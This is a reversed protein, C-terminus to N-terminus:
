SSSERLRTYSAASCTLLRKEEELIAIVSNTDAHRRSVNLSMPFEGVLYLIQIICEHGSRRLPIDTRNHLQTTPSVVTSDMLIMYGNMIDLLSCTLLWCCTGLKIVQQEPIHSRLNM